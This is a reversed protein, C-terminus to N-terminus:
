RVLWSGLPENESWLRIREELTDTVKNTSTDIKSVNNDDSNAVYVFRGDPSVAVGLPNKGVAIPPDLVTNGNTDIVSVFGAGAVRARSARRGTGRNGQM